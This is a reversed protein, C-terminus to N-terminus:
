LARMVILTMDDHQPAGAVFADACAMIRDLIVQPSAPCTSRVATVLRNVGWEEESASMAESIGDTFFLLLDGAELQM